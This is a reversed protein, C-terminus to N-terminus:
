YIEAEARRQGRVVRPSSSGTAGVLPPQPLPLAAPPSLHKWCRIAPCLPTTSIVSVVGAGRNGNMERRRALLM